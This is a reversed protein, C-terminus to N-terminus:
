IVTDEPYTIIKAHFYRIIKEKLLKGTWEYTYMNRFDDRQGPKERFKHPMPNYIIDDDKGRVTQIVRMRM